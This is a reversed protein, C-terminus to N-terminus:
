VSGNSQDAAAPAPDPTQDAPKAPKAPATVIEWVGLQNFDYQTALDDEVDVVADAEVHIPGLWEPLYLDRDQGSVNRFQAM